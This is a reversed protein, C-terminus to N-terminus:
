AADVPAKLFAVARQVAETAESEYVLHSALDQSLNELRKTPDLGSMALLAKLVEPRPPQGFGDLDCATQLAVLDVSQPKSGVRGADTGLLAQFVEDARMRVGTSNLRAFVGRLADPDENEMLYAPLEYDLLRQQVDEVRAQEDDGLRCDRLWKGLRRIDGLASLPVHLGVESPAAFGTLFKNTGPDFRVTWRRDAGHDLDLLAAAMATTRQQGDVIFWGEAAAPVAIRANGIRLDSDAPVPKKWFLLSGVPYGKLISDFLNVVDAGGWRLPRQFPPVRIEGAQVRNLLKRVTLSFATPPKDLSAYLDTRDHSPGSASTESGFDDGTM